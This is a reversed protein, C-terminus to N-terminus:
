RELQLCNVVTEVRSKETNVTLFVNLRVDLEPHSQVSRNAQNKRAKSSVLEM